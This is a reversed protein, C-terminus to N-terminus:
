GLKFVITLTCRQRVPKGRQRGPNWPPSAEVVWAALEDCGGGIGKIVKIDTLHGDREVIFEVFVRGDIGLRRAMPPYRGKLQNAVYTYFAEFGGAPRAGDELFVFPVDPADEPDPALSAAPVDNTTEEGLDIPPIDMTVPEDVRSVSFTVPRAVPKPPTIVTVPVEMLKTDSGTGMDRLDILPGSSSRWEFAMIVLSLSLAFGLSTFLRAMRYIDKAPAKKTEMRNLNKKM